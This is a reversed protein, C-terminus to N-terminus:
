PEPYIVRRRVVIAFRVYGFILFCIDCHLKTRATGKKKVCSFAFISRLKKFFKEVIEVHKAPAPLTFVFSRLDTVNDSWSNTKVRANANPEIDVRLETASRKRLFKM